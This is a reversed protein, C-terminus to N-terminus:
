MSVINRIGGYINLTSLIVLTTNQRRSLNIRNRYLLNSCFLGYLICTGNLLLYTSPSISM